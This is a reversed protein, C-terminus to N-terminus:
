RMGELFLITHTRAPGYGIVNMSGYTYEELQYLDLLENGEDDRISVVRDGEVVDTFPPIMMRAMRMVVDIDRSTVIARALGSGRVPFTCRVTLHPQWDPEARYGPAAEVGRNVNREITATENLFLGVIRRHASIVGRGPLRTM